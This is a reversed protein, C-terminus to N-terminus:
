PIPFSILRMSLQSKSLKGLQFKQLEELSTLLSFHSDSDKGVQVRDGEELITKDIRIQNVFVGNISRKDHIEYIGDSGMIEAHCRSIIEKGHSRLVVMLISIDM